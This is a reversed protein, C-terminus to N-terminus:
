SAEIKMHKTKLQSIQSVKLDMEPDYKALGLVVPGILTKQLLFLSYAASLIVMCEFSGVVFM